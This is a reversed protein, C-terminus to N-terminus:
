QVSKNLSRHILQDVLFRPLMRTLVFVRFKNRHVVYSLRPSKSDIIKQILNSIVSAPLASRKGAHVIKSTNKAMNGYDSDFYEDLTDDNKEWLKSEIPGPQISSFQIGYIMLERRYVEAMSELAHKSVCYAGNMPTNFIGSISSINIVKGPEGKFDSTGGLLPLVANIVNRAGYVNVEMQKRFATDSLLAMPGALAYGANNVLATLSEDGLQAQVKEVALEISEVDVVDFQLCTFNTPFEQALRAADADSRVSGFVRYGLQLFHKVADYGIGTSVGTIFINKM